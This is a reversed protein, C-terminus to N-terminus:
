FGNLSDFGFNPYTWTSQNISFFLMIVALLCLCILNSSIHRHHLLASHLYPHLPWSSIFSIEMNVYVFPLDKKPNADAYKAM